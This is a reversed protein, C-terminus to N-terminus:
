LRGHQKLLRQCVEQLAAEARPGAVARVVVPLSTGRNLELVGADEYSKLFATMRRGRLVAVPVEVGYRCALDPLTLWPHGSLSQVPLWLLHRPTPVPALQFCALM